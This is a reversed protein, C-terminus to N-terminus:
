INGTDTKYTYLVTSDAYNNNPHASDAVTDIVGLEENITNIVPDIVVPYTLNSALWEFSPKYILTYKGNKGSFEVEIENSINNKADYMVPAPIEFVAQGDSNKFTVSEDANLQADLKKATIKYKYSVQEEPKKNLIINEKLGTSTVEYELSTNEGVNEFSIGSTKDLFDTEIENKNDNSKIYKYKKNGKIKKNKSFLDSGELEFSISFKGKEIKLEKSSTIEQPITVTFNNKKNKYTKGNVDREEIM